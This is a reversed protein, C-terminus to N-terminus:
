LKNNINTNTNTILRILKSITNIIRLRSERFIKRYEIVIMLLIVVKVHDRHLM